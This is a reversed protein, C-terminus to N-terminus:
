ETLMLHKQDADAFSSDQEDVIQQQKGPLSLHKKAVSMLEDAWRRGQKTLSKSFGHETNGDLYILIAGDCEFRKVFEDLIEQDNLGALISNRKSM